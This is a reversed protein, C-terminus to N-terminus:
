QEGGPDAFLRRLIPDFGIVEMREIKAKPVTILARRRGADRTLFTVGQNGEWVLWAESGSPLAGEGISAVRPLTKDIVLYGYNVALLLIQVAALFGLVGRKVPSIPEGRTAILAVIPVLCAAVLVSFFLLMYTDDLLLSVLWPPVGSLDDALLLNGILFCQRMVLQIMLVSVVIAFTPGLFIAAARPPLRRWIQWVAYAIVLSVPVTAALYVLFRAGTFVYREDVITLDTALGMASLHFRVVLYGLLYLVFSGVVTFQTWNGTLSKFWGSVDDFIESV